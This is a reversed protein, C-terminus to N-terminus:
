TVDVWATGNSVCVNVDSGSGTTCDTAGDADTVVALYGQNGAAATPLSGVVTVPVQLSTVGTITGSTIAAAAASVSAVGDSGTVDLGAGYNTTVFEGEYTGSDQIANAAFAPIALLMFLALFLSLKKV